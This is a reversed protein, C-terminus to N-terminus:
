AGYNAEATTPSGARPCDSHPNAVAAAPIKMAQV